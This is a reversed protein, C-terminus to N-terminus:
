ASEFGITPPVALPEAPRISSHQQLARHLGVLELIVRVILGLLIGALAGPAAFTVAGLAVCPLGILTGTATARAVIDLRGLAALSAKSLVSEFLSVALITAMMTLTVFTPHLQRGGLWGVLEPAVALMVAGLATAFIATSVTGFRVRRQLESGTARPVWGQLFSVFPGLGVIVQRQVKDVVAYVPQAAPAVLAVIVIPSASYVSSLLTSTVGQRQARLVTVVSRRNISRLRTWKWPATIWVTSLVCASLIGLFQWLSGVLVNSGSNMLLIGIGTGTIRPLTELFLLEYPRASGVFYWNATLGVTAMSLAGLAAFLGYERAILYASVCALASIPIFLVVKAALSELYQTLRSRADARAISAPGSLGWGYAIVVAAIGGISQGAATMGWVHAGGAAVMAPIALLSFVALLLMSLAYGIISSAGRARRARNSMRGASNQAPLSPDKATTM